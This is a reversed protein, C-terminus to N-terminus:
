TFPSRFGPEQIQPRSHRFRESLPDIWLVPDKSFVGDQLDGAIVRAFERCREFADFQTFDDM